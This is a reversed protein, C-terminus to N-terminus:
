MQWKKMDISLVLYKSYNSIRSKLLSGHFTRIDAM